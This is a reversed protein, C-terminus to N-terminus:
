KDQGFQPGIFHVGDGNVGESVMGRLKDVYSPDGWGGVILNWRANISDTMVCGKWASLLNEVGKKPHLRGFYLLLKRSALEGTWWSPL